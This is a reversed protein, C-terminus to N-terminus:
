TNKYLGQAMELHHQLTPLTTSAWDKLKPNDGGKGYREFLSVASKHASVQDSFYQKRFDDGSLSNLKDLMKQHSPDMATPLPVNASTAGASLEASTKTHDAVMQDAFAKEPGSLKTSAVKSSQIEFMDSVAAEQVFDNTTPAIGLASNVGMKEGATEAIAPLTLLSFM